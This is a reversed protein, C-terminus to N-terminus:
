TTPKQGRIQPQADSARGQQRLRLERLGGNRIGTRRHTGGPIKGNQRRPGCTKLGVSAMTRSALQANGDTGVMDQTRKIAAQPRKLGSQAKLAAIAMRFADGTRLHARRASKLRDQGSHFSCGSRSAGNQVRFPAADPRFPLFARFAGAMTRCARDHQHIHLPAPHRQHVLLAASSASGALEM